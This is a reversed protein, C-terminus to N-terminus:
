YPAEYVSIGRIGTCLISNGNLLKAELKYNGPVLISNDIIFQCQSSQLEPFMETWTKDEGKITFQIKLSSIKEEPMKIKFVGAIGKDSTYIEAMPVDFVLTDKLNFRKRSYLLTEGDSELITTCIFIIPSGEPLNIIQKYTGKNQSIKLEIGNRAFVKDDSGTLYNKLQCMKEQEHNESKIVLELNNEDIVSCDMNVFLNEDKKGILVVPFKGPNRYKGGTERWQSHEKIEWNARCLNMGWHSGVPMTDLGFSSFPIEILLRWKSEHTTSIAKAGSNFSSDTEIVPIVESPDSAQPDPIIKEECMEDYINGNSNVMLHMFKNRSCFPDLFIEFSDDNWIRGSEKTYNQAKLKYGESKDAVFLVILKNNNIALFATTKFKTKDGSPFSIFSSTQVGNNEVQRLLEPGFEFSKKLVPIELVDKFEDAESNIGVPPLFKIEKFISGAAFVSNAYFLIMFLLFLKKNNRM